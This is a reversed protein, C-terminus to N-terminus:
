QPPGVVGQGCGGGEVGKFQMVTLSFHSLRKENLHIGKKKVSCVPCSTNYHDEYIQGLGVTDSDPKEFHLCFPSIKKIKKSRKSM